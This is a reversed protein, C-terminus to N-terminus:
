NRTAGLCSPIRFALYSPSKRLHRIVPRYEEVIDLTEKYNHRSIYTTILTHAVTCAKDPMFDARPCLPANTDSVYRHSVTQLLQLYLIYAPRFQSNTLYEDIRSVYTNLDARIDAMTRPMGDIADFAREMAENMPVKNDAESLAQKHLLVDKRLANRLELNRTGQWVSIFAPLIAGESEGLPSLHQAGGATLTVGGQPLQLPSRRVGREEIFKFGHLNREKEEYFKYNPSTLLNALADYGKRRLDALFAASDRQMETACMRSFSGCSIIAGESEGLPSHGDRNITRLKEGGQPLQLPSSEGGQPLQLPSQPLQLPSRGKAIHMYYVYDEPEPSFTKFKGQEYENNWFYPRLNIPIIYETFTPHPVITYDQGKPIPAGPTPTLFPRLSVDPIADKLVFAINSSKSRYHRSLSILASAEESGLPAIGRAPDGHFFLLTCNKDDSQRGESSKKVLQEITIGDNLQTLIYRLYHAANDVKETPLLAQLRGILMDANRWANVEATKKGHPAESLVIYRFARINPISFCWNAVRVYLVHDKKGRTKKQKVIGHFGRYPGETVLVTDNTSALLEYNADMVHFETMSSNSQDIFLRLADVDDTAITASSILEDLSKGEQRVCFLRADTKIQQKQLTGDETRVTEQYQFYGRNSFVRTLYRRRSFDTTYREVDIDVFIVHSILPVFAAKAGETGSVVKRCMPLYGDRFGEVRRLLEM